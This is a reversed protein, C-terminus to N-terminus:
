LLFSRFHFKANRGIGLGRRDRGLYFLHLHADEVQMVQRLADDEAGVGAGHPRRQGEVRRLVGRLADAKDLPLEIARLPLLERQPVEDLRLVIDGVLTLKPELVGADFSSPYIPLTQNLSARQRGIGCAAPESLLM